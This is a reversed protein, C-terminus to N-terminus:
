KRPAFLGDPVPVTAGAPAKVGAAESLIAAVALPAVREKRVGPIVGTGYVVLPVHTDYPHPSGHTTGTGLVASPLYYPKLLVYVDGCREPRFSRAVMRGTADAEPVGAVLATRTYAAQVGDQKALWATLSEEADAQKVGAAKVAKANLYVWPGAVAEVWKGAGKGYKEALFAEVKAATASQVRAAERGEKRSVEPLPCVGHDATM